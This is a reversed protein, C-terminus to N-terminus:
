GEGLMYSNFITMVETCTVIFRDKHKLEKNRTYKRLIHKHERIILCVAM